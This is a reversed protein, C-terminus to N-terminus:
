TQTWNCGFTCGFGEFWPESVLKYRRSFKFCNKMKWVYCIEYLDDWFELTDFTIVTFCKGSDWICFGKDTHVFWASAKGCDKSTSSVCIVYCPLCLHKTLEGFYWMCCMRWELSYWLVVRRDIHRLPVRWGRLENSGGTRDLENSGGTEPRM